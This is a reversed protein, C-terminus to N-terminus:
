RGRGALLERCVSAVQAWQEKQRLSSDSYDRQEHAGRILDDVMEGVGILERALPETMKNAAVLATLNAESLATGVDIDLPEFVTYTLLDDDMDLLTALTEVTSWVWALREDLTLEPTM